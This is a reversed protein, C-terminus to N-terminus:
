KESGQLERKKKGREFLLEVVMACAERVDKDENTAILFLMEEEATM